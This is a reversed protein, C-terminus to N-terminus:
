QPPEGPKAQQSKLLRGMAAINTPGFANIVLERGTAQDTLTLRGNAYLSLRYPAGSTEDANMRRDHSLARVMGRIFGDSNGELRVIQEGSQADFISINGERSSVFRLDRSEVLTAQASSTAADKGTLTDRIGGFHPGFVLVIGGLVVLALWIKSARSLRYPKSGSM